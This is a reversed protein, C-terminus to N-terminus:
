GPGVRERPGLGHFALLAFGRGAAARSAAAPAADRREQLAELELLVDLGEGLGAHVVGRERLERRRDVGVLFLAGIGDVGQDRPHGDAAPRADPEALRQELLVAPAPAPRTPPATATAALALRRRGRRFSRLRLLLLVVAESQERLAQRRRRRPLLLPLQKITTNEG